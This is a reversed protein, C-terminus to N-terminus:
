TQKQEKGCFVHAICKWLKESLRRYDEDETETKMVQKM